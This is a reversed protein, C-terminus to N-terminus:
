VVVAHSWGVASPRCPPIHLIRPVYWGVVVVVVVMVVVVMAVVLEPVSSCVLARGAKYNLRGAVEVSSVCESCGGLRGLLGM